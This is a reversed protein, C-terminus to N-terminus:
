QAELTDRLKAVAESVRRKITGVPADLTDAIEQYTLGDAYHLMVVSREQARLRRLGVDLDLRMSCVGSAEHAKPALTPDMSGLVRSELSRKRWAGRCQNLLLRLLFSKLKGCARFGPAAALLAIFTNQAADAAAASDGLLRYAARNLGAQHRLVLVDFATLDGNRTREMLVDDDAGDTPSKTKAHRM